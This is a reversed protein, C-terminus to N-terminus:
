EKFNAPIWGLARLAADLAKVESKQLGTEKGRRVTALTLAILADRHEKLALAEKQEDNM